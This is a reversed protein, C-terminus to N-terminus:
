VVIQVFIQDAGDDEAEADTWSGATAMECVGRWARVRVFDSISTSSSPEM